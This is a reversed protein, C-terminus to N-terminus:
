GHVSSTSQLRTVRLEDGICDWLLLFLINSEGAIRENYM